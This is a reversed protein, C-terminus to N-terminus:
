GGFALRQWEQPEIRGVFRFGGNGDAKFVLCGAEGPYELTVERIVNGHAAYVTNTGKPPAIALRARTKGAIAARGGFYEAVRMNMVDTTLQVAGLKLLEATQRTRCYPSAFVAHVPIKLARMAAGIATATRRGAASLQRIRNPDCSIWDGAKRVQDSTSWDTAAHRFYLSYGGGQLATILAEGALAISSQHGALDGAQATEARGVLLTLVAAALIRSM